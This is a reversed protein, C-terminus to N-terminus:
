AFWGDKWSDCARVLVLFTLGGLKESPCSPHLRPRSVSLCPALACSMREEVIESFELIKRGDQLNLEVDRGNGPNVDLTLTAFSQVIGALVSTTSTAPANLRDKKPAMSWYVCCYIRHDVPDARLGDPRWLFMAMSRHSCGSRTTGRAGGDM